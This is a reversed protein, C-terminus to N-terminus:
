SRSSVEAQGPQPKGQPDDGHCSSSGSPDQLALRTKSLGLYVPYVFYRSITQSIKFWHCVSIAKYGTFGQNILSEGEREGRRLSRIEAQPLPWTRPM